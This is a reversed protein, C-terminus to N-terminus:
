MGDMHVIKLFLVPKGTKRKALEATNLLGVTIMAKHRVDITM